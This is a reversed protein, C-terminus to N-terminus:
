RVWVEGYEIDSNSNEGERENKEGQRPHSPADPYASVCGDFYERHDLTALAAEFLDLVERKSVKNELRKALASLTVGPIETDVSNISFTRRLFLVQLLWKHSPSLTALVEKNRCSEGDPG